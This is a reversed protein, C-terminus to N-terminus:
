RVRGPACLRRTIKGRQALIREIERLERALADRRAMLYVDFDMVDDEPVDQKTTSPRLRVLDGSM